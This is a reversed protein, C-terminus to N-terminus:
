VDQRSVVHHVNDKKNMDVVAMKWGSPLEAYPPTRVIDSTAGNEALLMQVYERVIEPNRMIAEKLERATSEPLTVETFLYNGSRGFEEPSKYPPYGRRQRTETDYDYGTSGNFQYRVKVGTEKLGTLPNVIMIPTEGVPVKKQVKSTRGFLGTKVEEVEIRYESQTAPEFIVAEPSDDPELYMGRERISLKGRDAGDGFVTLGDGPVLADGTKFRVPSKALVTTEIRASGKAAWLAGSLLAQEKARELSKSVEGAIATDPGVKEGSKVNPEPRMEGKLRRMAIRREHGLVMRRVLDIAGRKRALEADDIFKLIKQSGFIDEWGEAWKGVPEVVVDQRSDMLEAALGLLKMREERAEKEDTYGGGNDIEAQLVTIATGLEDRADVWSVARLVPDDNPATSALEGSAKKILVPHWDANAEHNGREPQTATM